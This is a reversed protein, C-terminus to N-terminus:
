IHSGSSDANEFLGVEGNYLPGGKTVMAEREDPPEANRVKSDM